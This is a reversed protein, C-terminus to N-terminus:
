KKAPFNLNQGSVAEVAFVVTLGLFLIGRCLNGSMIKEACLFGLNVKM